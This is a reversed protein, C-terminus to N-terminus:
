SYLQQMIELLPLDYDKFYKSIEKIYSTNLGFIAEGLPGGIACYTDTDGGVSVINQFIDDYSESELIASFAILLSTKATVDFDITVQYDSITKVEFLYQKIIKKIQERTQELSWKNKLINFLLEVYIKVCQQSELHNHTINTIDNAIKLTKELGWGKNVAYLPVPSIRMLSGNGYSNYPAVSGNALWQYFLSGFGRNLYPYCFVRLKNALWIKYEKEEQPAEELKLLIYAVAVTCVTDDTFRADKRFFEFFKTRNNEIEFTSGIIDGIIASYM